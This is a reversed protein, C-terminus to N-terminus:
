AWRRRGLRPLRRPHRPLLPQCPPLDPVIIRQIRPMTVQLPSRVLRFAIAEARWRDPQELGADRLFRALENIYRSASSADKRSCHRFNGNRKGEPEGGAAGHM